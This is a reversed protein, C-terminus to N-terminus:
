STCLSVRWLFLHCYAPHLLSTIVKGAGGGVYGQGVSQFSETNWCEKDKMACGQLTLEAMPGCLILSSNSLRNSVVAMM